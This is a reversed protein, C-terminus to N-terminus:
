LALVLAIHIIDCGFCSIKEDLVDEDVVATAKTSRRV